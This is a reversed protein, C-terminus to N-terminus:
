ESPSQDSAGILRRRLDLFVDALGVFAILRSLVPLLVYVPVLRHGPWGRHWAYAHVVALGQFVFVTIMLTGADNIPGAGAVLGVLVAVVTAVAFGWPLRLAHFEAQFGQPNFLLAQWYRALLLGVIAMVLLGSAVGGTMRAAALELVADDDASDASNGTLEADAATLLEKWFVAADGVSAHFLVMGVLFVGTVAPLAYGWSVTTRLTVAGVLVPLWLGVLPMLIVLPSAGSLATAGALALTALGALFAGEGSGRRLTVLALAAAGIWAIPPVLAPLGVVPLAALRGQLIFSAVARM